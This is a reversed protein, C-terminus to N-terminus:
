LRIRRGGLAAKVLSQASNPESVNPTAPKVDASDPAQSAQKKEAQLYRIDPLDSGKLKFMETRLMDRIRAREQKEKVYSEINSSRAELDRLKAALEDYQSKSVAPPRLGGKLKPGSYRPESAMAKIVRAADADLDPQSEEVTAAQLQRDDAASARATSSAITKAVPANLRPDSSLEGSPEAVAAGETAGSETLAMNPEPGVKPKRVRYGAKPIGRGM